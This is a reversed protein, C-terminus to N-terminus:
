RWEWWSGRIKHEFLPEYDEPTKLWRVLEQKNFSRNRKMWLTRYEGPAVWFSWGHDGHAWWFLRFSDRKNPISYIQEGTNWNWDTKTYYGATKRGRRDWSTGQTDEYGKRRYTRSM